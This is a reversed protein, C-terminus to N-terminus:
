KVRAIHKDQTNAARNPIYLHYYKRRGKNHFVPVTNFSLQKQVRKCWDLTQNNPVNFAIEGDADIFAGTAKMLESDTSDFQIDNLITHHYKNWKRQLSCHEVNGHYLWFAILKAINGEWLIEFVNNQPVWRAKKHPLMLEHCITDSIWQTINEEQDIFGIRFTNRNKRWSLTGDGDFCGRIFHREYGAIKEVPVRKKIDAYTTILNKQDYACLTAQPSKYDPYERVNAKTKLIEKIKYLVERDDHKCIFNLHEENGKNRYKPKVISGDSLLYGLVWAMEKNM